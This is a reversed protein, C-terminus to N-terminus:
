GRVASRRVSPYDKRGRFVVRRCYCSRCGLIAFSMDHNINWDRGRHLQDDTAAERYNCRAKRCRPQLEVGSVSARLLVRVRPPLPLRTTRYSESATAVLRVRQTAFFAGQCRSRIRSRGLRPSRYSVVLRRRMIPPHDWFSPFFQLGKILNLM